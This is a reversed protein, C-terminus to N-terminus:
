SWSEWDDEPHNENGFLGDIVTAIDADNELSSKALTVLREIPEEDLTLDQVDIRNKTAPSPIGLKSEDIREAVGHVAAAKFDNSQFAVVLDSSTFRGDFNWDGQAWGVVESLPDEFTGAQFIEILDQSDFAGDLNADGISTDMLDYVVFLIDDYNVTGDSNVDFLGSTSGRRIEHAMMDIDLVDLQDDFTIDGAVAPVPEAACTPCSLVADGLGGGSLRSGDVTLDQFVETYSLNTPLIGPLHTVDWGNPALYFRSSSTAVDFLGELNNTPTLLNGDSHIQISSITETGEISLDGTSPDYTFVFDGNDGPRFPTREHQPETDVEPNYKGTRYFGEVFAVVYDSSTFEGDGNWDGEEWTANEGTEFKGSKNALIFDTEDFYYDQNTDGAVIGEPLFPPAPPGQEGGPDVEVETVCDACVLYNVDGIAKGATTTGVITFDDSIDSSNMGPSTIAGFYLESNGAPNLKFLKSAVFVDFLGNLIEPRDGILKSGQSVIEIVTIPIPSQVFIEGTVSDYTLDIVVADGPKPDNPQPPPDSDVCDNCVTLQVNGLGGGGVRSGDVTLDSLLDSESLGTEAVVGFQLTPLGNPHLVFLESSDAIDFLGNLVAPRTGNFKGSLSKLNFSTLDFNSDVRMAGNTSDYVITVDADGTQSLPMRNHIPEGAEDNYGGVNFQSAQFASVLDTASFKGDGVTPGGEGPGGNWDGEAWTAAEETEYKGVKFVQVFDAADFHFDLNADGPQVVALLRKNELQELHLPKTSRSRLHKRRSSRYAEISKKM